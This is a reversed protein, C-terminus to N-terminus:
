SAFAITPSSTRRKSATVTSAPTQSSPASVARNSAPTISRRSSPAGDNTSAAKAPTSKGTSTSKRAPETKEPPSVKVGEPVPTLAADDPAKRVVYRIRTAPDIARYGDDLLEISFNSLAGDDGRIERARKLAPQWQAAEVCLQAAPPSDKGLSSI